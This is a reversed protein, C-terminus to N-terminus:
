TPPIMCYRGKQKQSIERLMIIDFNMGTAAHTLVKDREVVSYEVTHAHTHTIFWM